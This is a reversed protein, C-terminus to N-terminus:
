REMTAQANKNVFREPIDWGNRNPAFRKTMFWDGNHYIGYKSTRSKSSPYMHVVSWGDWSLEKNQLVINEMHELTKIIM